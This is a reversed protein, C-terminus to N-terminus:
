GYGNWDLKVKTKWEEKIREKRLGGMATREVRQADATKTM